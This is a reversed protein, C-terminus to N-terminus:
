RVRPDLWNYIIEALLAIVVFFVANAMVVGQLVPLDARQTASVFLTGLGPISFIVELLLVTFVIVSLQNVIGAVWIVAAPRLASRYMLAFGSSGTARAAKFHALGQEERIRDRFLASLLASPHLSALVIALVLVSGESSLSIAPFITALLLAAAFALVFAPLHSLRRGFYIAKDTFPWTIAAMNIGLSVIAALATAAIGVRATTAFREAILPGVSRGDIISHGWNGTFTNSLDRVFREGLPLDLGLSQRIEKVAEPSAYPGLASRVPDAPLLQFLIFCLIYAGFLLSASFCAKKLLPHM